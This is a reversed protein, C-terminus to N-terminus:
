GAEGPKRGTHVWGDSFSESRIMGRCEKCIAEVPYHGPRMLDAPAARFGPTTRAPSGEVPTIAHPEPVPALHRPEPATV